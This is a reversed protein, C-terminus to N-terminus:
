RPDGVTPQRSAAGARPEAKVADGKLVELRRRYEAEDIDGAAFREALVAEATRHGTRAPGNGRALVVVGWIVLGWFSVM